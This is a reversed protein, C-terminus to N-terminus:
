KINCQFLQSTIRIKIAEAEVCSEDFWNEVVIKCVILGSKKSFRM